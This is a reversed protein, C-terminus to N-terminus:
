KFEVFAEDRIKILWGELEEEFKRQYITNKAQNEWRVESVDQKRRDLLQIIHWGFPSKVPDSIEGPKLKALAERFAPVYSKPDSWGLDGGQLASGPDESYQRALESFDDGSKLRKAINKALKQTSAESRIASPKVLIHRAHVQHVIQDSGGTKDVLKIVHWGSASRIPRSVQKKELTPTIDAFISPLENTNRWGLDSVNIKKGKFKAQKELQAFSTAGSQWQTQLKSMLAKGQDVTAQSAQSDIPLLVHALHYRAATLKKGEPSNLFNEVEQDTVQIRSNLNGQQVRSLIMERRIQDRMAEYSVGESEMAAKFQELTMHNRQAMNTMTETLQTDSIRVGARQGMQLQISELVLQDLIEKNLTADPPLERHQAKFSKKLQAIRDRLQSETIVDDDVIAIVRDLIQTEAYSPQAAPFLLSLLLVIGQIRWQQRLSTSTAFQRIKSITNKM